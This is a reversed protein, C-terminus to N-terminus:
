GWPKEPWVLQSRDQLTIDRLEMRYKKIAEALELNNEDIAKNFQWDSEELLPKRMNRITTIGPVEKYDLLLDDLKKKETSTLKSKSEEFYVTVCHPEAAIGLFGSLQLAIISDNLSDFDYGPTLNYQKNM